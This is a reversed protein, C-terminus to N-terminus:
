GHRAEEAEAGRRRPAPLAVLALGTAALAAALALAAAGPGDGTEALRGPLVPLSGGGGATAAHAAGSGGGSSTSAGSGDPDPGDPGPVDPADPGPADPADPDDPEVPDGVQEAGIRLEVSLRPEDGRALAASAKADEEGSGFPWRWDLVLDCEEGAELVAEWPDGSSLWEDPGGALWEGEASRLRYEMRLEVRGEDPAPIGFAEMGFACALNCGSGNRVSFRYEGAAGPRLEEDPAFLAVTRAPSGWVAGDRDVVGFGGDAGATGPFLGAALACALLVAGLSRRACAPRRRSRGSVQM